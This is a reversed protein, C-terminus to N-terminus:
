ILAGGSYKLNTSQWIEHFGTSPNWLPWCMDPSKFDRLFGTVKQKTLQAYRANLQARSGCSFIAWLLLTNTCNQQIKNISGTFPKVYLPSNRSRRQVFFFRSQQIPAMNKKTKNKEEFSQVCAASSVSSEQTKSSPSIRSSGRSLVPQCILYILSRQFQKFQQCLQSSLQM